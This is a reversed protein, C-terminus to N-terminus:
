APRYGTRLHWDAHLVRQLQRSRLTPGHLLVWRGFLTSGVSRLQQLGPGVLRVRHRNERKPLRGHRQLLWDPLYACQLVPLLRLLQRAPQVNPQKDHLERLGAREDRVRRQGHGRPVYRRRRLMRRLEARRVAPAHGRLVGGRLEPEAVRLERVQWRGFRVRGNPLRVPM